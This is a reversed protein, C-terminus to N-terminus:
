PLDKVLLTKKGEALINEALLYLPKNVNIAWASAATCAPVGIVAGPSALCSAGSRLPTELCSGQMKQRFIDEGFAYFIKPAAM